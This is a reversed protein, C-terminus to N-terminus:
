GLFETVLITLIWYPDIYQIQVTDTALTNKAIGPILPISEQDPTLPVLESIQAPLTIRPIKFSNPTQNIIIQAPAHKPFLQFPFHLAQKPLPAANM